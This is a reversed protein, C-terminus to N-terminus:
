PVMGNKEIFAQCARGTALYTEVKTELERIDAETRESVLRGATAPGDGSGAGQSDAPGAAPCIGPGVRVREAVIRQVVSALEENKAKTIVTNISAQAAAIVVNEATRHLIAVSDRAARETTARNFGALYAEHVRYADVAVLGAVLALGAGIKWPLPILSLIM